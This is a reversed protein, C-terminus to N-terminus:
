KCPPYEPISQDLKQITVTELFSSLFNLYAKALNTNAIFYGFGICYNEKSNEFCGMVLSQNTELDNAISFYAMSNQNIKISDSKIYKRSPSQDLYSQVVQKGGYLHNQCGGLNFTLSLASADNAEINPMFRIGSAYCMGDLKYEIPSSIKNFPTYNFNWNAKNYSKLNITKIKVKEKTCSCVLLLLYLIHYKFKFIRM